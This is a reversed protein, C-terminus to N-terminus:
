EYWSDGASVIKRTGKQSPHSVAGPSLDSEDELKVGM